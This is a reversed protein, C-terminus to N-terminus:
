RGEVRCVQQFIYEVSVAMAQADPCRAVHCKAKIEEAVAQSLAAFHLQADGQKQKFFQAASRPSFLPVIVPGGQSLLAAATENLDLPAQEYVISQTTPLGAATLSAAIDGRSSSGRIHLLPGQPNRALIGEILFKADQGAEIAAWGAANAAATTTGGVCFVAMDRRDTMKAMAQVGHRSTFVLGKANGVLVTEPLDRIEILPSICIQLDDGMRDRMMRAFRHSAELPRTILLTPVSVRM